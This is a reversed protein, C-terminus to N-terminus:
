IFYWFYKPDTQFKTYYVCVYRKIINSNKFLYSVINSSNHTFFPTNYGKAVYQIYLKQPFKQNPPYNISNEFNILHYTIRGIM